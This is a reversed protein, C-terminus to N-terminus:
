PLDVGVAVGDVYVTPVPDVASDDFMVAVHTWELPPVIGEPARWTARGSAFGHVFAISDRDADYALLWGDDANDGVSKGVIRGQGFESDPRVLVSITGGTAFADALGLGDAVLVFQELADIERGAGVWGPAPLVGTEMGDHGNGSADRAGDELHWVGRFDASWVDVDTLPVADENGYYMFIHQEGAGLEPVRVWAWSTGNADWADIEHHLATTDDADVFRLDAGGPATGTYDIRADDLVVLVPIDYLTEVNDPLVITLERRHPWDCHWWSGIGDSTTMGPATPDSPDDSGPSTADAVDDASEGTGSTGPLDVCTGSLDGSHEGYRQGTECEPDAFSCYGTEECVGDSDSARCESDDNCTFTTDRACGAAVGIALGVSIATTRVAM